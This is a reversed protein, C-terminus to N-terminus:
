FSNYQCDRRLDVGDHFANFSTYPSLQQTLSSLDNPESSASTLPRDNVIRAADSFFTQLEILSPLRRAEGMAKYLVNKFLKALSKWSGAEGPAYSPVFTWNIGSKRLSNALQPLSLYNTQLKRLISANDSFM